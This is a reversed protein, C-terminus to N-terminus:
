GRRRGSLGFTQEKCRQSRQQGISLIMPVMKRYEMCICSYVTNTKRKRLSYPKFTSTIGQDLSRNGFFDQFFFSISCWMSKTRSHRHCRNEGRKRTTSATSTSSTVESGPWRADQCWSLSSSARLVGCSASVGM